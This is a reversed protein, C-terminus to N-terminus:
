LREIGGADGSVAPLGDASYRSVEKTKSLPVLAGELGTMLGDTELDELATHEECLAVAAVIMECIREPQALKLVNQQGLQKVWWRELERDDYHYTLAPIIVFVHYLKQAEAIVEEIAMDAQLTDGIVEKVQRCSLRRYAHEDTVIFCYGKRGRKEMHDHATHRAMFYLAMESDEDYTGGGRGTLWMNTLNDDIEIGSEFQGVQLIGNRGGGMAAFDDFGGIMIAPYGDGLYRKGSAKDNLFCGMLRSLERQLMIPVEQMSGTTDFLVAVPVTVPHPGSDRSERVKVGFPDLSAHVKAPATGTKIDYSHKFTADAVPIGMKSSFDARATTRSAYDDHSYTSGGM